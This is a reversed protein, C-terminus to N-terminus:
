RGFEIGNVFNTNLGSKIQAIVVDGRLPDNNQLLPESLARTDETKNTEQFLSLAFGGLGELMIFVAFILEWIFRPRDFAEGGEVLAAALDGVGDADEFDFVDIVIFNIFLGERKSLQVGEVVARQFFENVEVPHIVCGFLGDVVSFLEQQKVGM